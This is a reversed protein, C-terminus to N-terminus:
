NAPTASPTATATSVAAPTTEPLAFVSGTLTLQVDGAVANPYGPAVVAPELNLGTVLYNRGQLDVQVSQLFRESNQFNGIVEVTLPIEVLGAEPAAATSAAPTPTSGAASAAPTPSAAQPTMVAKPPAPTISSLVMSNATAAANLARTVENLNDSAPVGQRLHALRAQHQPLNAFETKLTAIRVRTQDNTQAAQTAQARLDAAEARKPAILLFWTAICILLSLVVAGAVWARTKTVSM